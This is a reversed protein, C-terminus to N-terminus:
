PCAPGRRRPEYPCDPELPGGYEPQQLVLALAWAMAMQKGFGIADFACDDDQLEDGNM